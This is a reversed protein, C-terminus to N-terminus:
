SGTAGTVAHWWEPTEKRRTALSLRDHQDHQNHLVHKRFPVTYKKVMYIFLHYSLCFAIHQLGHWTRKRPEGICLWVFKTFFCLTNRPNKCNLFTVESDACGCGSHVCARPVAQLVSNILPVCSDYCSGCSCWDVNFCEYQSQSANITSNLSKSKQGFHVARKFQILRLM